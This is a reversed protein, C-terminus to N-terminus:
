SCLTIIRVAKRHHVGAPGLACRLGLHHHYETALGGDNLVRRRGGARPV